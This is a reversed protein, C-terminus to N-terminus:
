KNENLVVTVIYGILLRVVKLLLILFHKSFDLNILIGTLFYGIVQILQRNLKNCKRYGISYGKFAHFFMM